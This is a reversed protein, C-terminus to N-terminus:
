QTSTWLSVRTEARMRSDTAASFFQDGAVRIRDLKEIAVEPNSMAARPPSVNTPNECDVGVLEITRRARL